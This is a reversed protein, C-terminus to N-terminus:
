FSNQYREEEVECAHEYAEIEDFGGEEDDVSSSNILNEIYISDSIRILEYEDIMKGCVDCHWHRNVKMGNKFILEPRFIGPCNDNNIEQLDDHDIFGQSSALDFITKM